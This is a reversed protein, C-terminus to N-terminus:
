KCLYVVTGKRNLTHISVGPHIHTLAPMAQDDQVSSGTIDRIDWLTVVRQLQKRITPSYIGSPM